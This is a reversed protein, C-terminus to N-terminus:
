FFSAGERSLVNDIRSLFVCVDVLKRQRQKGSVIARIEMIGILRNLCYRDKSVDKGGSGLTHITPLPFSFAPVNHLSCCSDSIGAQPLTIHEFSFVFQNKFKNHM